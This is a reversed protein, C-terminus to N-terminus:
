CCYLLVACCSVACLLSAELLLTSWSHILMCVASTGDADTVSAWITAPTYLAKSLLGCNVTQWPLSTLPMRVLDDTPNEEHPVEIPKGFVVTMKSPYPVPTGWRGVLLM